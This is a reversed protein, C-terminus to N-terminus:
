YDEKSSSSRSEYSAFCPCRISRLSAPLLHSGSVGRASLGLSRHPPRRPTFYSQPAPTGRDSHSPPPSSPSPLPTGTAAARSPFSCPRWRSRSRWLLLSYVPLLRPSSPRQLPLPVRPRDLPITVHEAASSRWYHILTISVLSLTVRLDPADFDVPVRLAECCYRFRNIIHDTGTM